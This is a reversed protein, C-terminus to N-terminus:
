VDLVGPQASGHRRRRGPSPRAELSCSTLQAGWPWRAGVPAAAATLAFVKQREPGESRPLIPGPENQAAQACAFGM